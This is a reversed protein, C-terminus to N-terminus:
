DWNNFVIEEITRPKWYEAQKIEMEDLQEIEDRLIEEELDEKGLVQYNYQSLKPFLEELEVATLYGFESKPSEIRIAVLPFYANLFFSIQQQDTSVLIWYYNKGVIDVDKWEVQGKVIAHIFSLFSKVDQPDVGNQETAFGTIGRKILGKM